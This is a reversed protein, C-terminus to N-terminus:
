KAPEAAPQQERLKNFFDLESDTAKRGPSVSSPTYVPKPAEVPPTKAEPTTKIPSASTIKSEVNPISTNTSPSITPTEAQKDMGSKILDGSNISEKQIIGDANASNESAKMKSPNYKLPVDLPKVTLVGVKTLKKKNAFLLLQQDNLKLSYNTNFIVDEEKGDLIVDSKIKGDSNIVKLVAKAKKINGVGKVKKNKTNNAEKEEQLDINKESDNYMLYVKDDLLFSYSGFYSLTNYNYTTQYRNLMKSWEIEGNIDAKVIFIDGYEYRYRTRVTKGNDYTEEIIRFMESLYITGGDSLAYNGILVMEDPIGKDKDALREAKKENRYFYKYEEETFKTDNKTNLALTKEDMVVNIIGNIRYRGKKKSYFGMVNLTGTFENNSIFVKKVHVNEAFNLDIEKVSEGNNSIQLIFNEYDLTGGFIGKKTTKEYNVYVNGDNSLITNNVDIEKDNLKLNIDKSWIKQFNNDFCTISIYKQKEFDYYNYLIFKSKDKCRVYRIENNSNPIFAIYGFALSFADIKIPSHKLTAIQEIKDSIKLDNTLEAKYVLYEKKEKKYLLCYIKGGVNVMGDMVYDSAKWSSSEWEKQEKSEILKLNKDFKKVKVKKISKRLKKVGLTIIEGKSNASAFQPLKDGKEEGSWIVKYDQSFASISFFLIFISISKLKM